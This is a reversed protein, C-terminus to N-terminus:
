FPLKIGMPLSLGGSVASMKDRTAKEVKRVGDNFAAGVLEEIVSKNDDGTLISPDIAVKKVDYKGTMTVTVMGAGASGIIEMSALEEQAKKITEQMEQAQKMFGGLEKFM